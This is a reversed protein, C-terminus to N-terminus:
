DQPSGIAPRAFLVGPNMRGAPDIADKIRRMLMITVPDVMENFEPRKLRGIGHEASLTGGLRISEEAVIETLRTWHRRFAAHEMGEPRLLNFHVNGDGLHGFPVPRIGPMYTGVARSASALFDPVHAVPVATDSKLCSEDRILATAIAERLNWFAARHSENQALVADEILGDGLADALGTELATDLDNAGSAAEVEILVAWPAPTKLPERLAGSSLAVDLARRSMLEFASINGGLLRSLARLLALADAPSAVAAFASARADPRPRLKVVAGTIIGLSGEAGIFLQKLDYGATNKRLAKLGDWLTGDPLVVELGLVQERATGYCLANNGGANTSLNGGIQSSGVAGHFLPFYLGAEEARARLDALVMGADVTMTAGDTDLARLRNMRGLSLVVANELDAPVAAQTLGTLGGQPVVALDERHCWRMAAQVQATTAPRIIARPPPCRAGLPDDLFGAMDDPETLFGKPGLMKRLTEM